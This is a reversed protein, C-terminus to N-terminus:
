IDGDEKALENVKKTVTNLKRNLRQIEAKSALGIVDYIQERGREVRDEIDKRVKEARQFVSTGRLENRVRDRRKGLEKEVKRRRTDFRDRLDQLQDDLGRLADNFREFGSERLEAM